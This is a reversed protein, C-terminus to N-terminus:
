ASKVTKFGYEKALRKGSEKIVRVREQPSLNKYEEYLSLRIANLEKEINNIKKM